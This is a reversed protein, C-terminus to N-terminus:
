FLRSLKSMLIPLYQRYHTYNKICIQVQKKLPHYTISIVYVFVKLPRSALARQIALDISDGFAINDRDWFLNYEPELCNIMQERIWKKNNLKEGWAYSIFIQTNTNDHVSM